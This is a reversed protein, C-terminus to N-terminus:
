EGAAARQLMAMGHGFVPEELFNEADGQCRLLAAVEQRLPEDDPCARALFAAQQDPPLDEAEAFLAMLREVQDANM